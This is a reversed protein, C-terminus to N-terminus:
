QRLGKANGVRSQARKLEERANDLDRTTEAILWDRAEDWTDFYSEFKSRKSCCRLSKMWVYSATEREVEIPKITLRWRNAVYKIM